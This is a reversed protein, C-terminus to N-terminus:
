SYGCELPSQLGILSYNMAYLTESNRLEFIPVANSSLALNVSDMHRTTDAGNSSVNSLFHFASM